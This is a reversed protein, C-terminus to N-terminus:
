AKINRERESRLQEVRHGAEEAIEKISRMKRQKIPQSAMEMQFTAKFVNDDDGGFVNWILLRFEADGARLARDFEWTDFDTGSLSCLIEYASYTWAVRWLQEVSRGIHKKVARYLRAIWLAQRITIGYRETEYIREINVKEAWKQVDIIAEIAEATLEPYDPYDEKSMIGLNWLKDLGTDQMEQYRKRLRQVQKQVANLTVAKNTDGILILYRDYIQRANWDPREIFIERVLTGTDKLRKNNNM